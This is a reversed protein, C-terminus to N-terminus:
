WHKAIIKYISTMPTISRFDRVMKAEKKRPILCLCTGNMSADIIGREHFESFVKWLAM